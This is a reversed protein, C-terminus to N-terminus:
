YEMTVIQTISSRNERSRYSIRLLLIAEQQEAAVDVMEVEPVWKSLADQVYVRALESLVDNNQQHRLRNLGSDMATNWPMEGETALAQIIKSKLLADGSAHAWDQKKDRRFPILLNTPNRLM